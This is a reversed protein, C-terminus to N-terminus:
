SILNELKEVEEYGQFCSLKCFAHKYGGGVVGVCMIFHSSPVM